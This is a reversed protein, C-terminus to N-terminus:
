LVPVGDNEIVQQVKQSLNRISIPKTLTSVIFKGKKLEEIMGSELDFASVLIVQTGDLDRIHRAVESGLMDGLRYDLLLVDIKQGRNKAQIYKDICAKGSTATIIDYKVALSRAYITVLDKEDDCVMVTKKDHGVKRGQMSTSQNASDKLSTGIGIVSAIIKAIHSPAVPKQIFADIKLYPMTLDFEKKSVEYATLFAIRVEYNNCEQRVKRAFAIGTLGPMRIDLLLLEYCDQKEKFQQYAAIPDTFADVALGMADLGSKVTAIVDKDDDVLM